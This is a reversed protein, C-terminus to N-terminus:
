GNEESEEAKEIKIFRTGQMTLLYSCDQKVKDFVNYTVECRIIEGAKTKCRLYYRRPSSPASLGKEPSAGLILYKEKKEIVTVEQTIIESHNNDSWRLVKRGLFLVIIGIIIIFPTAFLLLEFFDM